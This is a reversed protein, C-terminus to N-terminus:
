PQEWRSPVIRVGKGIPNLLSWNAFTPHALSTLHLTLWAMLWHCAGEARVGGGGRGRSRHRRKDSAGRASGM